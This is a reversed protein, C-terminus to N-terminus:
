AAEKKAQEATVVNSRQTIIWPAVRDLLEASSAVDQKCYEAIESYRGELWAPYVKSGDWGTLKEPLGFRKLYYNLSHYEPKGSFPNRLALVEMLDIHHRADYKRLLDDILEPSIAVDLIMSRRVMVPIDFSKGNFSAVPVHNLSCRRIYEWADQLLRYETEEDDANLVLYDDRSKQYCVLCVIQCLDPNTAMQKDVGAEFRARADDIKEQIKFRDKLNGLAVSAEDFEPRCEAPLSQCPITEIDLMAYDFKV